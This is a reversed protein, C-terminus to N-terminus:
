IILTYREIYKEKLIYHLTKPTEGIIFMNIPEYKLNM